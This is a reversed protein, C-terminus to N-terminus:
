YSLTVAFILGIPGYIDIFPFVPGGLDQIHRVITILTLTLGPHERLRYACISKTFSCCQTKNSLSSCGKDIPFVLAGREDIEYSQDTAVISM